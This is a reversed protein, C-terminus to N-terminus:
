FSLSRRSLYTSSILPMYTLEHITPKSMLRRKSLGRQAEEDDDENENMAFDIWEVLIRKMRDDSLTMDDDDNEHNM